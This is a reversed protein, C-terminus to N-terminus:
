NRENPDLYPRRLRFYLQQEGEYKKIVNDVFGNNQLEEIATNLMTRFEEEGKRILFVNPFVRLAQIGVVERVQGPNTKLFANAIIPEVFTVDAKRTAVELLLQSVDSSQTLGVVAANPFDFKAIISSMEGDIGAIRVSPQNISSKNNDFRTDNQRVYAKIPSFYLPVSFDAYKGRQSNPWIGSAVVDVRKSSISEIMTGWAEEEVFEIKLEMNRGAEVLVDHFVGSLRKSNPDKIFSPPYPIFGVRITKRKIVDQYVSNSERKSKTGDSCGSLTVAALIAIFIFYFYKM